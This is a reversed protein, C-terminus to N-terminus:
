VGGMEGGGKERRGGGNRGGGAARTERAQQGRDGYRVGVQPTSSATWREEMRRRDGQISQQAQEARARAEQGACLRVTEQLLSMVGTRFWQRGDAHHLYSSRDSDSGRPPMTPTIPGLPQPFDVSNRM